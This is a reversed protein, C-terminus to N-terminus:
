YVGRRWIEVPWVEIFAGGGYKLQGFKLLRGEGYKLQDFTLLRGEKM